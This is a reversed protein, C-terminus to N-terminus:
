KGIVKLLYDGNNLKNLKIWIKNVKFRFFNRKIKCVWGRFCILIKIIIIKIIIKMKIKKKKIYIKVSKKSIKNTKKVKM